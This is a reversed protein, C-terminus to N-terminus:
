SAALVVLGADVMVEAEGIKQCAIGVAGLDMQKQALAPIKHTKIHPRLGLKHQNCYEQMRILNADMVDLDVLLAPTDLDYITDM